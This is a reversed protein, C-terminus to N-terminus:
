GGAESEAPEPFSPLSLESGLQQRIFDKHDQLLSRLVQIIEAQEDVKAALSTGALALHQMHAEVVKEAGESAAQLYELLRGEAASCRRECGQLETELLRRQQAGRERKRRERELTKELSQKQRETENQAAEAEAAARSLKAGRLIAEKLLAELRAVQTAAKESAKGREERAGEEQRREKERCEVQSQLELAQLQLEEVKQLASLREKDLQKNASSQEELQAQLSSLTEEASEAREATAQLQRALEKLAQQMQLSVNSHGQEASFECYKELIERISPDLSERESRRKKKPERANRLADTQKGLVAMDHKQRDDLEDVKGWSEKVEKLDKKKSKPDKKRADPPKPADIGTGGGRLRAAQESPETM